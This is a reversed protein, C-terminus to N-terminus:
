ALYIFYLGYASPIASVLGHGFRIRILLAPHDFLRRYGDVRPDRVDDLIAAHVVPLAEGQLARVSSSHSLYAAM